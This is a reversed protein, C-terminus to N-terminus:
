YWPKSSSDTRNQFGIKWLLYVDHKDTEFRLPFKSNHDIQYNYKPERLLQNRSLNDMDITLM